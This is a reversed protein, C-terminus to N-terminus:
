SRGDVEDIADGGEVPPKEGVDGDDVPQDLPPRFVLGVEGDERFREMVGDPTAGLSNSTKASCQLAHDTV